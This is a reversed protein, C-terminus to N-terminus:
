KDLVVTRIIRPPLIQDIILTYGNNLRLKICPGYKAARQKRRRDKLLDISASYEDEEEDSVEYEKIDSNLADVRRKWDEHKRLLKEIEHITLEKKHELEEFDKPDDIQTIEPLHRIWDYRHLLEMQTHLNDVENLIRLREENTMVKEEKKMKRHFAEYVQDDLADRSHKTRRPLLNELLQIERTGHVKPLEIDNFYRYINEYSTGQKIAIDQDKYLLENVEFNFLNATKKTPGAKSRLKR